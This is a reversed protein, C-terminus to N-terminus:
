YGWDSSNNKTHNNIVTNVATAYQQVIYDWNYNQVTFQKGQKGLQQRLTKSGLLCNLAAEFEEYQTYYLGGNSHRCQQKLVECRGNVLVPTEVLWSELVIMSLSEYLSPMMVISAAQIADFKDQESVFGLPLIDPHEPLPIYVNGLMVLRLAGEYNERFCLFDDVLSPVNKAEDIRGVYLLFNDEIQYKQRFREAEIDSPVNIGSGVVKDQIRYGNQVTKQVLDKEAETHYFIFEPLHFLSRYVPMKIYPDDHANPILIAKGTMLPLGFYTTAYLFTSFIFCDFETYNEQLFELLPTSYPGQAKVWAIEDFLTHEKMLIAKTQKRSNKLSRPEDVPFRHLTVRNLYSIGPEYVNAWTVDIACSTLVHVDGIAKLHEALWRAHLEAGGNVEEGYRQVVVALRPRRM